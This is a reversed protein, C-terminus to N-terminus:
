STLALAERAQEIGALKAQLPAWDDREAIAAWLTEIEDILLEQPEAQEFYAHQLREERDAEFAELGTRLARFAETDYLHSRVGQLARPASAM